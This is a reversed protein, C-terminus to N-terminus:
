GDAGGDVARGLNPEAAYLVLHDDVIRVDAIGDPLSVRLAPGNTGEFSTPLERVLADVVTGPLPIGQARASSVELVLRRGVRVVRGDLEASVTDPLAALFSRLRHAGSWAATVMDARLVVGGGRIDVSTNTVGTPVLGPLSENLLATVEDSGLSMSSSGNRTRFLLLRDVTRAALVDRAVIGLARADTASVAGDDQAAVVRSSPSNPEVRAVSLALVLLGVAAIGIGRRTTM